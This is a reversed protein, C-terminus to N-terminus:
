RTQLYDADNSNARVTENHRELNDRQEQEHDIGQKLMLTKLAESAEYCTQFDHYDPPESDTCTIKAELEKNLKTLLDAHEKLLDDLAKLENSM